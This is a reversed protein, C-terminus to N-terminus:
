RDYRHHRSSNHERSDQRSWRSSHKSSKEYETRNNSDPSPTRFKFTGRGKMIRGSKSVLPDTTTKRQSKIAALRSQSSNDANDEKDEPLDEFKSLDATIPLTHRKESDEESEKRKSEITRKSSPPVRMLFRNVPVQPIEDLNVSCKYAPNVYTDKDEDVQREDFRDRRRSEDRGKDSEDRRLRTTELRRNTRARKHSKCRTSSDSSRSSSSTSHHRRRKRHYDGSKRSMRESSTRSERSVSSSYNRSSASSSSRSSCSRSSRGDSSDSSSCSPSRRKLRARSRYPPTTAGRRSTSSSRSSSSVRSSCSSTHSFSSEPSKHRSSTRAHHQPSLSRIKSHLTTSPVQNSIRKTESEDNPNVQGCNSIVVEKVPRSKSDVEQREIRLVTDLGAVVRGFVVHKRDLHPAENTTIFFQSKNTNPGRNAMSLLYPEDHALELNEDDFTGGYISDGGKGNGDTIDGGQIIFNKVIRHFKTGKYHLQKGTQKSEGREGTCLCRFNECTKPCKDNFLKFVIRGCEKGGISIDFFCKLNDM